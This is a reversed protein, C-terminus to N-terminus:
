PAPTPGLLGSFPCVGSSTEPHLYSMPLPGPVQRLQPPPLKDELGPWCCLGRLPSSAPPLCTSLSRKLSFGSFVASVLPTLAPGHSAPTVATPQHDPASPGAQLRLIDLLGSACGHCTLGQQCQPPCASPTPTGPCQLGAQWSGSHSPLAGLAMGLQPEKGVVGRERAPSAASFQEPCGAWCRLSRRPSLLHPSKRPGQLWM